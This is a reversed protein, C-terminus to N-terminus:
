SLPSAGLCVSAWALHERESEKARERERESERARKRERESERAKERERESERRRKGGPFSQTGPAGPPIVPSLLRNLM